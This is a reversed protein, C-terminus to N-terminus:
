KGGQMLLRVAGHQFEAIVKRHMHGQFAVTGHQAKCLLVRVDVADPEADGGHLVFAAPAAALLHRVEIQAPAVEGEPGRFRTDSAVLGGIYGPAGIHLVLGAAIIVVGVEGLGGIDGAPVVVQMGVGRGIRIEVEPMLVEVFQLEPFNGGGDADFGRIGEEVKERLLAGEKAALRLKGVPDVVTKDDAHLAPALAGEAQQFLGQLVVDLDGADPALVPAALADGGEALTQLPIPMKMRLHVRIERGFDFLEVGSSDFEEAVDIGIQYFATLQIM